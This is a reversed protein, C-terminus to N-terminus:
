PKGVVFTGRGPRTVLLGEAVLLAVAKRVTVIAVEHEAALDPISPIASRLPYAGSAILERLEAAVQEYVYEPGGRESGM